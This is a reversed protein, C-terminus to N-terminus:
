IPLEVNKVARELYGQLIEENEIKLEIEPAFYLKYTGDKKLVLKPYEDKENM